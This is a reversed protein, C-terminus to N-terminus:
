YNVPTCQQVSEQKSNQNLYDAYKQAEDKSTFYLLRYDFPPNNEDFKECINPFETKGTEKFGYKTGYDFSKNPSSIQLTFWFDNANKNKQIYLRTHNEEVVYKYKRSSCKCDVKYNRGVKDFVEIQRHEDCYGCKEPVYSKEDVSYLEQCEFLMELTQKLGAKYFDSRVTRQLRAKEIELGELKERAEKELEDLNNLKLKMQSNEELLRKNEQQLELGIEKELQSKFAEYLEDCSEYDEYYNNM